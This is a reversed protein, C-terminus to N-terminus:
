QLAVTVGNYCWQLVVTPVRLPAGHGPIPLPRTVNEERNKREDVHKVKNESSCRQIVVAVGIYCWQLMVCFNSQRWELVV